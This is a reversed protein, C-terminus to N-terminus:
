IKKRNLNLNVKEWLCVEISQSLEHELRLIQKSNKKLLQYQKILQCQKTLQCTQHGEIYEIVKFQKM